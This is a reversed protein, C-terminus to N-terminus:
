NILLPRGFSFHGRFQGAGLVKVVKLDALASGDPANIDVSVPEAACYEGAFPIQLRNLASKAKVNGLYNLTGAVQPCDEGKPKVALKLVDRGDSKAVGRWGDETASQSSEGIDVHLGYYDRLAQSVKGSYFGQVIYRGKSGSDSDFGKVQVYAYGASYPALGHGHPATYITIGGTMEDVPELGVPLVKRVGAADWQVVATVNYADTQLYPPPPIRAEDARAVLSFTAFFVLSLLFTVQHTVEKM